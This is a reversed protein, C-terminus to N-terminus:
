LEIRIPIEVKLVALLPILHLIAIGFFQFFLVFFKYPEILGTVYLIKNLCDNLMQSICYKEWSYKEM